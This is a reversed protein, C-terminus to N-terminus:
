LGQIANNLRNAIRQPPSILVSRVMSKLRFINTLFKLKDPSHRALEIQM